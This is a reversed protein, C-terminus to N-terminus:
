LGWRCTSLDSGEVKSRSYGGRCIRRRSTTPVGLMCTNVAYGLYEWVECWGWIIWFNGFNVQQNTPPRPYREMSYTPSNKSHSVKSLTGHRADNSTWRESPWSRGTIGAQFLTWSVKLITGTPTQVCFLNCVVYVNISCKYKHSRSVSTNASTSTSISTSM